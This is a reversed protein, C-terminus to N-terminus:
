IEKDMLQGDTWGNHGRFCLHILFLFYCVRARVRVRVYGVFLSTAFNVIKLLLIFTVVQYIPYIDRFRHNKPTQRKPISIMAEHPVTKSGLLMVRSCAM